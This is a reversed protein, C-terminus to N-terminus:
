AEISSLVDRISGLEEPYEIKNQEDYKRVCEEIGKEYFDTIEKETIKHDLKELVAQHYKLSGNEFIIKFGTEIRYVYKDVESILGFEKGKMQKYDSHNIREGVEITSFSHPAKDITNPNNKM